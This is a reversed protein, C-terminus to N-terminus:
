KGAAKELVISVFIKEGREDFFYANKYAGHTLARLHDIVAGYTATKALDLEKLANFDSKLNVNGEGEPKMLSYEDRLINVLNEKLLAIEAEVVRNYLTLSTDHSFKNVKRRAVIYGHDLMEDIEHITAGIDTDNIIAFVQPYWGRNV